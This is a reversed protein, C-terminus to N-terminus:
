PDARLNLELEVGMLRTKNALKEPVLGLFHGVGAAPELVKGKAFGLHEAMSWMSSIVEPSTYHANLGSAEAAKWEDETLLGGLAPHLKKGIDSEWAEYAKAKDPETRWWNALTNSGTDARPSSLSNLTSCTRLSPAGDPSSSFYRQEAVTPVRDEKELRNLLEIARINASIRAKKGSHFLTDEPAIRNNRNRERPLGEAEM